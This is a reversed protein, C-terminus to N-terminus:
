LFSRGNSVIKAGPYYYNLIERYEYRQRSMENAGWQCMGVGHGWGKGYFDCFYGKVAVEYNNSKLVNPGIAERFDKGAITLENGTRDTILLTRIRGSRNRELIRIDKILGIRYGRSNLKNQIDKLQLNKKWRYHPSTSCFRCRVGMLPAMPPHKWLETVDETTGGCTSHFYAPLIDMQYSLLQGETRGVALNTRFREASKGGYVQSYIDSTLDYDQPKNKEIQYAAYTRAVVAQAKLAEMAWRHSVEHYLVGRVYDELAIHNVATLKGKVDRLIDVRGRYRKEDRNRGISIDKGAILSIQRLPYNKDGIWIGSPSPRVVTTPLRRGESLIEKNKPDVIQYFGRVSLEMQAAGKLLAVRVMPGHANFDFLQAWGWPVVGLNLFLLIFGAPISLRKFPFPM